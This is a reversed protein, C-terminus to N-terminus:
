GMVEAGQVLEVRGAGLLHGRLLSLFGLQSLVQGLWMTPSDVVMACAALLDGAGLAVLPLWGSAGSPRDLLLAVAGLQAVFLASAIAIHVLNVLGSLTFPTLVIGIMLLGGLSMLRSLVPEESRLLWGIRLFCWSLAVMGVAFPLITQARTGYLCLGAEAVPQAPAIMTAWALVAVPFIVLAFGAM